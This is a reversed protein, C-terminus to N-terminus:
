PWIMKKAGETFVDILITRFGEAVQPGVKKFLGKLKAAACHDTAYRKRARILAIVLKVFGVM